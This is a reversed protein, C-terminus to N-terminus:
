KFLEIIKSNRNREREKFENFDNKNNKLITMIFKDRSETLEKKQKSISDFYKKLELTPIFYYIFQTPINKILIFHIKTCGIRKLLIDCMKHNPSNALQIKYISDNIKTGNRYYKGTMFSCIKEPNKFLSDILLDDKGYYSNLIISLDHSYTEYTELVTQKPNPNQYTTTKTEFEKQILRDLYDMLPKEDPDYKDIQDKKNVVYFRGMYDSLTGLIFYTTNLNIKNSQALKSDSQPYIQVPLTMILIMSLLYSKM